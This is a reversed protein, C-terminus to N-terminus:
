EYYEFALPEFPTNRLVVLGGSVVLIQNSQPQQLTWLETGDTAIGRVTTDQRGQDFETVVVGGRTPRIDAGEAFSIVEEGTLVDLLEPASGDGTWVTPHDVDGIVQFFRREASWLLEPQEGVRVVDMTGNSFVAVIPFDFSMAVMLRSRPLVPSGPLTLSSMLEGKLTLSELEQGRVHVLVDAAVTLPGDVDFKFPPGLPELTANDVLTATGNDYLVSRALGLNTIASASGSVQGTQPDLLKVSLSSASSADARYIRGNFVQTNSDPAEISWLEEGTAPALAAVTDTQGSLTRNLIFLGDVVEIDIVGTGSVATTWLDDGTARDVATVVSGGVLAIVGDTAAASIVMRNDLQIRWQLEAAPSMAILGNRGVEPANASPVLSVAAVLAVILVAAVGASIFRVSLSDNLAIHPLPTSVPREDAFKCDDESAAWESVSPSSPFTESEFDDRLESPVWFLDESAHARESGSTPRATPTTGPRRWASDPDDNAGEVAEAVVVLHYATLPRM